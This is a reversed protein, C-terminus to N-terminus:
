HNTKSLRENQLCSNQRAKNQSARAAKPSQERHHKQIEPRPRVPQATYRRDRRDWREFCHQDRDSHENFYKTRLGASNNERSGRSGGKTGAQSKNINSPCFTNVTRNKVSLLKCLSELNGETPNVLLLEEIWSNVFLRPLLKRKFLEAIFEMNCLSRRLTRIKEDELDTGQIAADLEKQKRGRVSDLKKRKKLEEQCRSLLLKQFNTTSGLKVEKLRLCLDAYIVSSNPESTAKEYIVGIIDKLREETDINKILREPDSTPTSKVDGAKGTAFSAEESPVENPTPDSVIGVDIVPVLPEVEKGSEVPVNLSGNMVSLEPIEQPACPSSTQLADSGKIIDQEKGKLESCLPEASITKLDLKERSDVDVSGSVPLQAPIAPCAPAPSIM